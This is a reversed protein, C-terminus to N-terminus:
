AGIRYIRQANDHFLKRQDAYPLDVVSNAYLQYLNFLSTSVKDMPFNSAFLCRDAGFQELVFRCAPTFADSLEQQSPTQTRHEFGFGVVPMFFGSLKIHVNPCEALAAMGEQWTKHIRDRDNATHGYSAFPGGYGIPTGMHDLVFTQTPFALALERAEGLQHHFFWADFVLQHDALQALGLRWRPNRSLEPQDCYRMIGRDHDFALMQRIGTLKKSAALHAQLCANLHPSQLKAHGVIAGLRPRDVGDFIKELWATEGAPGLPSHDKWEAEVHVIQQIPLQAADAAYNQPLYDYAVYDLRGVYDRDRKRAGLRLTTEYLSRNWGLLKRPLSLIRPTNWLDWQHIHPDIIPMSLPSTM